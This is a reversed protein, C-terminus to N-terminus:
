DLGLMRVKLQVSERNYPKMLYEDAGSSLAALMKSVDTESSVMMIKFPSKQPFKRLNKIFSIGDSVPLNWDVIIFLFPGLKAYTDIGSQGDAAESVIFGLGQLTKVMM